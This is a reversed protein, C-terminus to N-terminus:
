EAADKKEEKAALQKQRIGVLRVATRAARLSAYGKAAKM